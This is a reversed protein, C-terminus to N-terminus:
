DFAVDHGGMAVAIASFIKSAEEGYLEPRDFFGTGHGNRTLWLDIGVQRWDVASINIQLERTIALYLKRCDNLAKCKDLDSLKADAPPQDLDGTETFHIAEIYAQILRDSSTREEPKDICPNM